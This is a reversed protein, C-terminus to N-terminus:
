RSDPALSREVAEILWEAANVGAGREIERICTPSTVNIETLRDGIIDLGVFRLGYRTLTPAVQQCIWADAESLPQARYTGGTALNARTEGPRALRALAYPVPEGDVLLVRKDGDEIAPVFAQAMIQRRFGQTVVELASGVNPDERRLRFIGSGGMADLPKIIIDGHSDLFRRLRDDRAAVLTPPCCQPFWATFLKENADRLARPRNIIAVGAAEALELLHTTYLYDLDFPPDCRMLVADLSALPAEREAVVTFWDTDDDYVSVQRMRAEVRGERWVLDTPRIEFVTWGRQQAVLMMALTSDKRPTIDDLPEMVFGLEHTMTSERM